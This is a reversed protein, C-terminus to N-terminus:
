RFIPLVSSTDRHIMLQNFTFVSFISFSPAHPHPHPNALGNPISCGRATNKADVGSTKGKGRRTNGTQSDM